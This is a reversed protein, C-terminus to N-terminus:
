QIGLQQKIQEDSMNKLSDTQSKKKDDHLRGALADEVVRRQAEESVMGMTLYKELRAEMAKGTEYIHMMKSYFKTPGDGTFLGGPDPPVLRLRNAEKESMQAGTIMKIYLNLNEFSDQFFESRRTVFDQDEPSLEQDKEMKDIFNLWGAKFKGGFTLFERDFGSIMNDLRVGQEKVQFLKEELNQQTGPRMDKSGKRIRVTGDPGVYLEEEAVQGSAQVVKADQGGSLNPQIYSQTKEDWQKPGYVDEEDGWLAQPKNMMGNVLSPWQKKDLTAWVKMLDAAERHKGQAQLKAARDSLKSRAEAFSGNFALPMLYDYVDGRTTETEPNDLEEVLPQLVPGLEPVLKLVQKLKPGALNAKIKRARAWQGEPSAEFKGRDTKANAASTTANTESVGVRREALNKEGYEAQSAREDIALRRNGQREQIGMRRDNQALGRAQALRGILKDTMGTGIQLGSGFGSMAMM